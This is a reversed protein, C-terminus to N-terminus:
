ALARQAELTGPWYRTRLLEDAVCNIRRSPATLSRRPTAWTAIIELCIAESQRLRCTQKGM